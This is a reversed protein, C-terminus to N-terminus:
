RHKFFACSSSFSETSSGANETKRWSIKILYGWPTGQAHLGKVTLCLLFFLTAATGRTAFLACGSTFPYIAWGREFNPTPFGLSPLALVTQPKKRILKLSPVPFFLFLSSLCKLM